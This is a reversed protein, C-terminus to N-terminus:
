LARVGQHDIKLELYKAAINHEKFAAVMAEGIEEVRNTAFAILCPGAGSLVAGLAGQEIAAKLVNQMGPILKERYPQHIRDDLASRLHELEGKCLAGVLLATHSINFVADKISITDPLVKRAAKTSLNFNPIAVVLKLDVEPIFSLTKAQQDKMLSLTIGGFIAPAVNDPHGEIETAMQFIEQKDFVNGIALNAAMLGSVIAAASSGLGRSLPINNLMRIHAGQYQEGAKQLLMQMSKWVINRKDCPISNKGEGTIEVIIKNERLLSVELENYINCAMGISDFGPGCNATTGPVRVRVTNEGKLM